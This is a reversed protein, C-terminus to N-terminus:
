AVKKFDEITLNELVCHYEYEAKIKLQRLIPQDDRLVRKKGKPYLQDFESVKGTFINKIEFETGMWTISKIKRINKIFTSKEHWKEKLFISGIVVGDHNLFEIACRESFKNFSKFSTPFLKIIAINKM